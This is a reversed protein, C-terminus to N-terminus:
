ETRGDVMATWAALEDISPMCKTLAWKTAVYLPKGSDDTSIYLECGQLALRARITALRKSDVSLEALPAMAEPASM